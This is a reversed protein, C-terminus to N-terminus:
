ARWGAAPSSTCVAPTSRSGKASSRSTTPRRGRPTYTAVLMRPPETAARGVSHIGMLGKTVLQEGVTEQVKVGTLGRLMKKAEDALRKPNMESPPTDVLLAADRAAEVTRRVEAPIPTVEGRPSVAVVALDRNAGKSRADFVPFARGAAAVLAPVHNARDAVLIVATQGDADNRVGGLLREVADLRAPHNHHSAVTPVAVLTMTGPTSGTLTSVAQGMMGPDATKALEVLHPQLEPGFITPVRNLRQGSAVVVARKAGRLAAPVDKPFSLKSV